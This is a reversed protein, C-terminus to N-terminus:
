DIVFRDVSNLISRNEFKWENRNKWYWNEASIGVKENLKLFINIMTSVNPDDITRKILKKKQKKTM